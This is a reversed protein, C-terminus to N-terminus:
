TALLDGVFVLVVMHLDAPLLGINQEDQTSAVSPELSYRMNGERVSLIGQTAGGDGLATVALDTELAERVQSALEWPADVQLDARNSATRSFAVVQFMLRGNWVGRRRPARDVSLIDIELWEDLTDDVAGRWGGTQVTLSPFADVLVKTLSRVAYVELKASVAM